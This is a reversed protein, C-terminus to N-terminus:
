IVWVKRSRVRCAMELDCSVEEDAILEATLDAREADLREQKAALVQAGRAM